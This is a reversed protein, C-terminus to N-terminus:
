WLATPNGIQRARLVADVVKEGDTDSEEDEDDSDESKKIQKKKKSLASGGEKLARM